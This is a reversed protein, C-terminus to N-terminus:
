VQDHGWSFTKSHAFSRDCTASFKMATSM